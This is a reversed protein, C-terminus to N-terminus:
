LLLGENPNFYGQKLPSINSMSAMFHGGAGGILAYEWDAFGQTLVVAIKKM